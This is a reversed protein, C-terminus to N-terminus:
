MQIGGHRRWYGGVVEEKGVSKKRNKEVRLENIKVTNDNNRDEVHGFQRIRNERMKKTVNTISSNGKIYENRIKNLRTVSSM